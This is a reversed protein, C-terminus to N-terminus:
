VFEQLSYFVCKCLFNIILNLEIEKKDRNTNWLEQIASTAHFQTERHPVPKDRDQHHSELQLRLPRSADGPFALIDAMTILIRM